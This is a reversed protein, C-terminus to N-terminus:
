KASVVKIEGYIIYSGLIVFPRICINEGKIELIEEYEQSELPGLCTFSSNDITPIPIDSSWCHGHESIGNSFINIKSKIIIKDSTNKLEVVSVKMIEHIGPEKQCSSFLFSFLILPVLLLKSYM